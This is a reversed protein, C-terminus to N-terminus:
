GRPGGADAPVARSAATEPRRPEAAAAPPTRRRKGRPRPTRAPRPATGRSEHSLVPPGPATDAAEADPIAAIACPPAALASLALGLVFAAIRIRRV